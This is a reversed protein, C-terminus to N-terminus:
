RSGGLQLQLSWCKGSQDATVSDRSFTLKRAGAFEEWNEGADGSYLWDVSKPNVVCECSLAMDDGVTLTVEEETAWLWDEVCDACCSDETEYM